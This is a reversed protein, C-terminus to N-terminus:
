LRKSGIDSYFIICKYKTQNPRMMKFVLDYGELDRANNHDYEWIHTM